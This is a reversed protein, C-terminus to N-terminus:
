LRRGNARAASTNLISAASLAGIDTQTLGHESLTQASLEGNVALTADVPSMNAQEQLAIIADTSAVVGEPYRHRPYTKAM